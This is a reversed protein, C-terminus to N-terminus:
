NTNAQADADDQLWSRMHNAMAEFQRQTSALDFRRSLMEEIHGQERLIARSEAYVLEWAFCIHGVLVDAHHNRIDRPITRHEFFADVVAPSLESALMDAEAVGYVDEIPCICNVKIIDIKDADRLIDCYARTRADLHAPLRYASHTLVATRLLDDLGEDADLYQRVQPGRPDADGFLVDAGLAAHAVSVADVFTDYRRVQEFRGVDHLLGCLWAVDPDFGEARAIRECLGAVRLTHDVKLAIRPNHPDYDRVYDAFARTARQRDIM